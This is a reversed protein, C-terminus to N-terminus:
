GAQSLMRRLRARLRPDNGAKSLLFELTQRVAPLPLGESILNVLLPTNGAHTTGRLVVDRIDDYDEPPHLRGLLAGIAARQVAPHPDGLSTILFLRAQESELKRSAVAAAERESPDAADSHALVHEAVPPTGANGLARIASARADPTDARDLEAVLLDSLSESEAQQGGQWLKAAIAGLTYASAHHLSADGGGEFLARVAAVTAPEPVALFGARQVLDVLQKSDATALHAFIDRMAAQAQPHGVGALLDTALRMGERDLKGSTVSQAIEASLAPELRLRGSARWQWQSLEPLSAPGSFSALTDLLQQASVGRARDRLGQADARGIAAALDREKFDATDPMVTAPEDSILRLSLTSHATLVSVGDQGLTLSERSDFDRLQGTDTRWYRTVGELAQQLTPLQPVGDVATYRVAERVHMGDREWYRVERMGLATREVRRPPSTVQLRAFLAWLANAVGPAATPPTAFGELAGDPAPRVRARLGEFDRGDVTKGLIRLEARTMDHLRAIVVSTGAHAASTVLELRGELDIEGTPQPSGAIQRDQSAQWRLTYVLRRSAGRDGTRGTQAVPARGAGGAPGPAGTPAATGGFIPRYIAVGAACLVLAGIGPWWRKM